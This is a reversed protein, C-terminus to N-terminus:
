ALVLFTSRVQSHYFNYDDKPGSSVSKFPTAFYRNNTYAADGFICLGDALFGPRELKHYLPSTTFALFDSTSAPHRLCVDLFRCEVDCTAQMNLGFKGKRACFFKKSGCGAQQCDYESPKETWLVMGDTCGACVGFGTKSKKKFGAAIEYQKQHDSPYTFELLECKNVADVVMWVSHFVETHSIGHVLAIDEPRGGAFYRIAASLRVPTTIVGNTAGNKHKKKKSRKPRLHKHVMRHLNWFSSGKMRYARRVYYPGLEAFIEHVYKRERAIAHFSPRPVDPVTHAIAEKKEGYGFQDPFAAILVAVVVLLFRTQEALIEASIEEDGALVLQWLLAIVALQLVSNM